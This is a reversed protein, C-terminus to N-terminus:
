PQVEANDVASPTDATPAFNILAPPALAERAVAITTDRQEYASNRARIRRGYELASDVTRLRVARALLRMVHSQQAAVMLGTRASIQAAQAPTASRALGTLENIQTDFKETAQEATYAAALGGAAEGRLLLEEDINQRGAAVDQRLPQTADGVVAGIAQYATFPSSTFSGQDWRALNRSAGELKAFGPYQRYLDVKLDNVFTDFSYNKIANIGANVQQYTSLLANATDAADSAVKNLESMDSEIQLLQVLMHVLTTNEEGFMSGWVPAVSVLVVLLVAGIRLRLPRAPHAESRSM